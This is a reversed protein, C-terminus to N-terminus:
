PKGGQEGANAPAAAAAAAQAAMEDWAKQLADQRQTAPALPDYGPPAGGRATLWDFARVRAAPSTDELYVFNEATVRAEFDKRSPVTQAIEEITGPNSGIQGAHRLLVALLEPPLDSASQRQAMYKLAIADLAWGLSEVAPPPQATDATLLRRVPEAMAALATDDAVLILDECISAGVQTSLYALSARRSAEDELGALAARFGPWEAITLTPMTPGAGAAQTSQRLDAACRALAQEMEAGAEGRAARLLVLVSKSPHNAFEFPILIAIDTPQNISVSQLIAVEGVTDRKPIRPPQPRGQPESDDQDAAPLSIEPPFDRLSVAVELAFGANESGPQHMMVEIARPSAQKPQDEQARVSATVASPIALRYSALEVVNAAGAARIQSAVATAADASAWRCARTLQGAPLVAAEGSATILRVQPAMPGLEPTVETSLALFQVEVDLASSPDSQRVQRATPGSLPSGSFHSVTLRAAPPELM